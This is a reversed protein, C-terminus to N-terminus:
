HGVIYRLITIKGPTAATSNSSKERGILRRITPTLYIYLMAFVPLFHRFRGELTWIHSPLGYLNSQSVGSVTILAAKDAEAM